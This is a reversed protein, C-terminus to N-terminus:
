KEAPIVFVWFRMRKPRGPVDNFIPKNPIAFIPFLLVNLIREFKFTGAYFMGKQVMSGLVAYM